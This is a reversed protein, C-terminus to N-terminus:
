YQAIYYPHLLVILIDYKSLIYLFKFIEYELKVELDFSALFLLVVIYLFQIVVIILLLLLRKEINKEKKGLKPEHFWLNTCYDHQRPSCRSKRRFCYFGFTWRPLFHFISFLHNHDSPFQYFLLLSLPLALCRRGKKWESCIALPSSDVKSFLIILLPGSFWHAISVFSCCRSSLFRGAILLGNM